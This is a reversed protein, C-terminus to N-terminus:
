PRLATLNTLLEQAYLAVITTAGWLLSLYRQQTSVEGSAELAQAPEAAVEAAAASSAVSAPAAPTPKPPPAPATLAQYVCSVRRGASLLLRKVFMLVLALLALLAVYAGSREVLVQRPPPPYFPPLGTSELARSM